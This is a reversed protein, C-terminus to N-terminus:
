DDTGTCVTALAYNAGGVAALVSAEIAIRM